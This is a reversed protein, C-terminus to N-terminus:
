MSSLSVKVLQKVSYCQTHMLFIVITIKLTHIVTSNHVLHATKPCVGMDTCIHLLIGGETHINGEQVSPLCVRIKPVLCPESLVPGFM